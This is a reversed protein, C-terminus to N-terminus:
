AALDLERLGELISLFNADPALCATRYTNLFPLWCECHGARLCPHCITGLVHTVAEHRVPQRHNALDEARSRYLWSRIAHLLRALHGRRGGQRRPAPSRPRSTSRRGTCASEEAPPSWSTATTSPVGGAFGRFTNGMHGSRETVWTEPRETKPVTAPSIAM